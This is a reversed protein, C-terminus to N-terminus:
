FFLVVEGALLDSANTGRGAVAHMFNLNLQFPVPFKKERFWHVTSFGATALVSHLTLEPNLDELLRYRFEEFAGRNYSSRSLYQFNYGAGLTLGLTPFLHDVATGAQVGHRAGSSVEEKDASLSDTASTPLRKVYNRPLQLTYGSYANWRVAGPLM